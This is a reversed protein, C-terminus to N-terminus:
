FLTSTYIKKNIGWCKNYFWYDIIKYAIKTSLDFFDLVTQFFSIIKTINTLM